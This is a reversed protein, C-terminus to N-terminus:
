DNKTAMVMAVSYNQQPPFSMLGNILVPAIAKNGSERRAVSLDM